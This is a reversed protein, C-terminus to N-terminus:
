RCSSSRVLNSLQQLQLMHAIGDDTIKDCCELGLVALAHLGGVHALGADSIKPCGGLNLEQLYLM